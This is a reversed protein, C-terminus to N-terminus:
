VVLRYTVYRGATESKRIIKVVDGRTMGFYKAVPDNSTMRPLQSEKLKYRELVRQKEEASLLIHQPVLQHKTINVLLDDEKFLEIRRPENTVSLRAVTSRAFATIEARLVIISATANDATMTDYIRKVLGVGIRRDDAPFFAMIKQTPDSAKLKTITLREADVTGTSMDCFQAKFEDLTENREAESVAYGRDMLMELVTKRVRYSKTIQDHEM